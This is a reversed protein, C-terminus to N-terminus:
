AAVEGTVWPMYKGTATSKLNKYAVNTFQSSSDPLPKPCNPDVHLMPVKPKGPPAAQGSTWLGMGIALAGVVSGAYLYSKVKM